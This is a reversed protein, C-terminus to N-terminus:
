YNKDEVQLQNLVADWSGLKAFYKRAMTRRAARAWDDSEQNIYDIVDKPIPESTGEEEEAEYTKETVLSVEIRIPSNFLGKRTKYIDHLIVLLVALTLLEM